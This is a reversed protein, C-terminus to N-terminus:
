GFGSELLQQLAAAFRFIPLIRRRIDFQVMREELGGHTQLYPIYVLLDPSSGISQLHASEDIRLSKPGWMRSEQNEAIQSDHRSEETQFHHIEIADIDDYAFIRKSSLPGLGYVCLAERKNNDFRWEDRYFPVLFLMICLLIPLLASPAFGEARFTGVIGLLLVLAFIACISRVGFGLTYTIVGDGKKRLEYSFMGM